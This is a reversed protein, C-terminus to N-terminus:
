VRRRHPHPTSPLAFEKAANDLVDLAIGFRRKLIRDAPGIAEDFDYGAGVAGSDNDHNLLRCYMIRDAIVAGPMYHALRWHPFHCATRPDDPALFVTLGAGANYIMRPEVSVGEATAKLVLGRMYDLSARQDARWLGKIRQFDRRARAIFDVAIADDDDQRFHGVVDATPDVHPAVAEWCAPLHHKRPPVVSLRIQPVSDALGVLRTMFPDPLDPGTMLVLTFDPDSQKMFAPLTVNEFWFWRRALRGADYLFARRQDITAHEVQFGREGLYSFRCLGLMQVRM